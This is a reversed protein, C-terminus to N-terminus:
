HEDVPIPLQVQEEAAHELAYELIDLRKPSCTDCLVRGCVQWVFCAKSDQSMIQTSTALCNPMGTTSHRHTRPRDRRPRCLLTKPSSHTQKRSKRPGLACVRCHHKRENLTFARRCSPHQCLMVNRDSVWHERSKNGGGHGTLGRTVRAARGM